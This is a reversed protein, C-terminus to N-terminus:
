GKVQHRPDPSGAHRRGPRPDGRRLDGEPRWRHRLAHGSRQGASLHPHLRAVDGDPIAFVRVGPGQMEKIAKDHRPKALTIVTLRSPAQRPAKAVAGKLNLELAQDLDIRREGQPGVILKERLVHRPGSSPDKEGVALVALANAQGMATMRTGEIPDVAIDM